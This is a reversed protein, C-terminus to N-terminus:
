KEKISLHKECEDMIKKVLALEKFKALKEFKM